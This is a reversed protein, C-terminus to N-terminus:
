MLSLVATFYKQQTLYDQTSDLFGDKQKLFTDRKM